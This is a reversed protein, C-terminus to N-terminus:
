VDIIVLTGHSGPLVAHPVGAPALYMQGAEVTVAEHEVQLLLKGDVVLLGENYDHTEEGYPQDDMRLVKIKAAGVQGVVSSKWAAALSDAVSKFDVLPM